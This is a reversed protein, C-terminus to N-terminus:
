SSLKIYIDGNSGLSSSPDSTGSHIVPITATISAVGNSVSASTGNFSVGTLTGANKTFGWGSVTSETVASPIQSTLALTGASTPLTLQVQSGNNPKNYIHGYSYTTRDAQANNEDNYVSVGFLQTDVAIFSGNDSDKIAITGPSIITEFDGSSDDFTLTADASMTGGSKPLLSSTDPIQSTLALTGSSSPFTFDEGNHIIRTHTYRTTNASAFSSSSSFDISPNAGMAVRLYRQDDTGNVVFGSHNYTASCDNDSNNFTLAANGNM